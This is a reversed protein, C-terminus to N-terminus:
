ISLDIARWKESFSRSIVDDIDEGTLIHFIRWETGPHLKTHIKRTTYKGTFCEQRYLLITNQVVVFSLGLTARTLVGFCYLSVLWHLFIGLTIKCEFNISSLGCSVHCRAWEVVSWVITSIRKRQGYKKYFSRLSQSPPLRTGLDWDTQSRRFTLRPSRPVFNPLLIGGDSWGREWLRRNKPWCNFRQAIM